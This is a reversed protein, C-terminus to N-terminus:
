TKPGRTPRASTSSSRSSEAAPRGGDGADDQRHGAARDATPGLPLDRADVVLWCALLQRLIADQGIWNQETM